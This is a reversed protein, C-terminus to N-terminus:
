SCHSLSNWFSPHPKCIGQPWFAYQIDMHESKLCALNEAITSIHNSIIGVHTHRTHM